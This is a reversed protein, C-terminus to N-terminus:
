GNHFTVDDRLQFTYVLGDDSVTWSEALSPVIEAVGDVVECEVLRDYINLPVVYFETDKQTDVTPFEDKAPIHLMNEGPATQSVAGDGSTSEYAASGDGSADGATVAATTEGSDEFASGCGSLGGLAVAGALLLSVYRKM